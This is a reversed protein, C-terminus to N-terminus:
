SLIMLSLDVKKAIDNQSFNHEYYLRAVQVLLETKEIEKKTEGSM